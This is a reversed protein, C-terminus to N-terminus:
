PPPIPRRGRGPSRVLDGQSGPLGGSRAGARLRRALRWREEDIPGEASVGNGVRELKGSILKPLLTDRLAALTRSERENRAMKALLPGTARSFRDLVKTDPRIVPTAIVVEPRIAPYAGGDALHSRGQINESTTAALYAFEEDQADKPRLVAFGTSGTLGNESILAYSGNGPRVTGLITDGPRLVRQARSPADRQAYTTM